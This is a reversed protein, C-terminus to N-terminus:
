AGSAESEDVLRLYGGPPRAVLAKMFAAGEHRQVLRDQGPDDSDLPVGRDYYAQALRGAEADIIELSVDRGPHWTFVAARRPKGSLLSHLVVRTPAQDTM